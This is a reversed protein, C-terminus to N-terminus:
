EVAQSEAGCVWKAGDFSPNSVSFGPSKSKCIIQFFEDTSSNAVGPKFAAGAVVPYLGKSKPTAKAISQGQSASVITYSYYKGAILADLQNMKSAFSGKELRYAQQARNVTGLNAMAEVSIRHNRKLENRQPNEAAQISPICLIASILTAIGLKSTLMAIKPRNFTKL